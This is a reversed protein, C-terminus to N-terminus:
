PSRNDPNVIWYEGVGGTMYVVLKKLMDKHRTSESLVEVVLSSM